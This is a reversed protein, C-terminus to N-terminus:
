EAPLQTPHAVHRTKLGGSQGIGYPVAKEAGVGTVVVRVDACLWVAFLEEGACLLLFPFFFVRVWPGLTEHREKSIRPMGVRLTVAMFSPLM